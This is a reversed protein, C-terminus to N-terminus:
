FSCVWASCSPLCWGLRSMGAAYGSGLLGMGLAALLTFFFMGELSSIGLLAAATAGTFGIHSLAETAFAQGRLVIFYGVLGSVIAVVSGALFANRVFEHQFLELM